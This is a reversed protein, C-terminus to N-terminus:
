QTEGFAGGMLINLVEEPEIEESDILVSTEEYTYVCPIYDVAEEYLAGTEVQRIMFDSDSYHRVRGDETNETRIM